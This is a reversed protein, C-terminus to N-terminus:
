RKEALLEVLVRKTLKVYNFSLNVLEDEAYESGRQCKYFADYFINSGRCYQRVDSNPIRIPPATQSQAILRKLENVTIFCDIPPSVTEDVMLYYASKWCSSFKGLQNLDRQDFAFYGKGRNRKTQVVTVGVTDRTKKKSLVFDAGTEHEGRGPHFVRKSVKVGRKEFTWIPEIGTKGKLYAEEPLNKAEKIQKIVQRFTHQTEDPMAEHFRSFLGIFHQVDGIINEPLETKEPLM